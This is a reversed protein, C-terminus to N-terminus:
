AYPNGSVGQTGGYSSLGSSASPSMSNGGGGGFKVLSKAKNKAKAKEQEVLEPPLEYASKIPGTDPQKVTSPVSPTSGMSLCM